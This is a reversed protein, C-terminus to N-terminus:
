LQQNIRKLIPQIEQSYDKLIQQAEKFERENQNPPIHPIVRSDFQIKEAQKNNAPFYNECFTIKEKPNMSGKFLNALAQHTKKTKELLQLYAIATDRRQDVDKIQEKYNNTLIAVEAVLKAADNQSRNLERYASDFYTNISNEELRLNGSIYTQQISEMLLLTYDQFYPDDTCILVQKIQDRRFQQSKLQLLSNVIYTGQQIQEPKLSIAIGAKALDTTFDGFSNGLIQLNQNFDVTKGSALKGLSEVYDFLVINLQNITERVPIFKDCDKRVKVPQFANDPNLTVVSEQYEIDKRRLCSNYIDQIINSSPLKMASSVAGFQEVSTLDEQDCGSVIFLLFILPLVLNSHKLKTKM